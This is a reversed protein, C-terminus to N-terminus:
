VRLHLLLDLVLAGHVRAHLLVERLRRALELPVRSLLLGGRVFRLREAGLQVLREGREVVGLLRMAAGLRADGVELAAHVAGLLGGRLRARARRHVAPVVLPERALERLGPLLDLRELRVGRLRALVQRRELPPSSRLLLRSSAVRRRGRRSAALRAPFFAVRLLARGRVLFDGRGGRQLRALRLHARALIFYLAGVRLNVLLRLSDRRRAVLLLRVRRHQRLRGLRVLRM